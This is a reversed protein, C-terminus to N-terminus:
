RNQHLVPDSIALPRPLHARHDALLPRLLWSAMGSSCCHPALEYRYKLRGDNLFLVTHELVCIGGIQLYQKPLKGGMRRGVGAAPIVAFLRPLSANM